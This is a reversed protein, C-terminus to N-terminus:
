RFFRVFQLHRRVPARMSPIFRIELLLLLVAVPIHSYVQHNSGLPMEAGSFAVRVCVTQIFPDSFVFVVALM